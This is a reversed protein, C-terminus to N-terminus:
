QIKIERAAQDIRLLERLGLVDAAEVLTPSVGGAWEVSIQHAVAEKFFAALLQIGAGDVSEVGSADLHIGGGADLMDRLVAHLEGVEQISMQEPLAFAAGTDVDPTEASADPPRDGTDGPPADGGSPADRGVASDDAQALVEALPDHNMIPEVDSM